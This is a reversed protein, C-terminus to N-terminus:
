IKIKFCKFRWYFEQRSAAVHWDPPLPTDASSTPTLAPDKGTQSGQEVGPHNESPKACGSPRMQTCNSFWYSFRFGPFLAPFLYPWTRSHMWHSFLFGLCPKSNLHPSYPCYQYYKILPSVHDPRCQPLHSFMCFFDFRGWLIYCNEPPNFVCM